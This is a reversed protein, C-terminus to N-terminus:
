YMFFGMKKHNIYPLNEVVTVPMYLSMKYVYTHMIDRQVNISYGWYISMNSDWYANFNRLV